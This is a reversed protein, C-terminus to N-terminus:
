STPETLWAALKPTKNASQTRFPKVFIRCTFSPVPSNDLQLLALPLDPVLTGAVANLGLIDECRVRYILPKNGGFLHGQCLTLITVQM